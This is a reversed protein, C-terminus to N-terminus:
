IGAATLACEDRLPRVGRLLAIEVGSETMDARHIRREVRAENGIGRPTEEAVHLARQHGAVHARDARTECGPHVRLERALAVLKAGRTLGVAHLRHVDARRVDRLGPLFGALVEDGDVERTREDVVRHVVRRADDGSRLGWLLELLEPRERTRDPGIRPPQGGDLAGSRLAGTLRGTFHSTPTTAVTTTSTTAASMATGNRTSVGRM